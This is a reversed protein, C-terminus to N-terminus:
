SAYMCAFIHVLAQTKWASRQGMHPWWTYNLCQYNAASDCVQGIMGILERSYRAAIASACAVGVLRWCPVVVSKLPLFFGTKM